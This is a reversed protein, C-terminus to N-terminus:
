QKGEGTKDTTKKMKLVRKEAENEENVYLLAVALRDTNATDASTDAMISYMEAYDNENIIRAKVDEALINIFENQSTAPLYKVSYPKM